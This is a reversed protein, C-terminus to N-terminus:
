TWEAGLEEPVFNYAPWPGTLELDVGEDRLDRALSALEAEFDGRDAPVLYAGNFVMEEERGSLEPPQLALPVGDQAVALLPTHIRVAAEGRFGELESAVLQELRRREMYARGGEATSVKSELRRIVDNHKARGAAFRDRDIFAKVGVEVAGRVRDLAAQLSERRESLFRRLEAEDRYVTCFRCPVVSVDELVRELVQEHARINQELWAADSLREPLAAEDFEALSVRSAVGVLPGESVLEVNEAVGGALSTSASAEGAAAVGYLYWGLDNRNLSAAATM